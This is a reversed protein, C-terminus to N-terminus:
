EDGLRFADFYNKLLMSAYSVGPRVEFTQSFHVALAIPRGDRTAPEFRSQMLSERSAEEFGVNPPNVARVCVDVVRGKADLLFSGMVVGGVGRQRADKPYDPYVRHTPGSSLVDDTRAFWTLDYGAHCQPYSQPWSVTLRGETEELAIEVPTGHNFVYLRRETDGAKRWPADDWQIFSELPGRAARRWLKKISKFSDTTTACRVAIHDEFPSAPCDVVPAGLAEFIAGAPERFTRPEARTTSGAMLSVTLVVVIVFRRM